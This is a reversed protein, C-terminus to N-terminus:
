LDPGNVSMVDCNSLGVSFDEVNADLGFDSSQGRVKMSWCKVRGVIRYSIILFSRCPEILITTVQNRSVFCFNVGSPSNAPLACIM